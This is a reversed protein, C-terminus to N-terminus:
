RWRALIPTASMMLQHPQFDRAGNAANAAKARLALAARRRLSAARRRDRPRAARVEVTDQILAHTGIV